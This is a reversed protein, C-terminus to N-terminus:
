DSIGFVFKYGLRQKNLEEPNFNFEKIWYEESKDAWSKFEPNAKHKPIFNLLADFDFDDAVIGAGALSAEHANCSQEIHTPVMLVPKGLYMAECVSEFGATTAYAECGAMYDIFLNDNLKHFSLNKNIVTEEEADKKDWFFHMRIDPNNKQYEIIESAYNANLMYGHLYDGKTAKTELVKKRLLPPVITIHHDPLNDKKEISLAFLKSSRTCTIRTFLMLMKLEAKSEHPFKYEPHLFLYQHAVSVQPTKPPHIAYTLGAMMDYFNVVVDAKTDKIKSRIYYISRVYMPSKLLNYAISAWINTKKNNAAPLFNPSDFTFVQSKINKLFFGPLERRNSKGVMVAVVEHGHKVLIDRLAISQTLHGRGEGQVVFLFKM